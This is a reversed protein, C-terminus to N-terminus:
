GLVPCIYDGGYNLKNEDELHFGHTEGALAKLLTSCGSGPRGLALLMEGPRVLGEFDKLIQVKRGPDHSFFSWVLRPIALAYSAFNHQYKTASVFGHCDLDWYALGSQNIPHQKTEQVWGDFASPVGEVLPKEHADSMNARLM